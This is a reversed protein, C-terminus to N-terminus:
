GIGNYPEILQDRDDSCIKRMSLHNPVKVRDTSPAALLRRPLEYKRLVIGSAM